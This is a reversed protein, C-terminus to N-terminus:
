PGAEQVALWEPFGTVVKLSQDVNIVKSVIVIVQVSQVCANVSNPVDDAIMALCEDIREPFHAPQVVAVDVQDPQQHVMHHISLMNSLGCAPYVVIDMAFAPKFIELWQAIVQAVQEKGLSSMLVSPSARRIQVINAPIVHVVDEPESAVQVLSFPM